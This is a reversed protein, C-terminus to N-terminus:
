EDFWAGLAAPTMGPLLLPIVRYGDDRRAEVELAHAIERRVWPSNVTQLSIVAIFSRATAIAEEIEPLLKSGPRLNRSDVWVPLNLGELAVRL